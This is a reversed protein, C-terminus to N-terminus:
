FSAVNRSETVRIHNILKQLLSQKLVKEGFEECEAITNFFRRELLEHHTGEQSVEIVTLEYDEESWIITFICSQEITIVSAQRGPGGPWVNIFASKHVIV